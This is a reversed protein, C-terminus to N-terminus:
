PDRLHSIELSIALVQMRRLDAILPCLGIVGVTVDHTQCISESPDPSSVISLRHRRSILSLTM